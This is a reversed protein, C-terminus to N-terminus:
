GRRPRRRWRGTALALAGLPFAILLPDVMARFRTNEGIEVLDGGLVVMAVTGAVLLWVVEGPPWGDPGARSSWGRRALRVGAVLGRGLVFACLGALTLSVTVPIPEGSAFLPINWGEQSVEHDVSLLLPGYVTDLWTTRGSARTTSHVFSLRLATGRDALYAMPHRRVLTLANDRAEDYVPLYCEHNFNTTTFGSQGKEPERTTPHDHPDCPESWRRYDDAPGWPPVRALDSVEGAAVDARVLDADMPGVIGRQLNFGLWSSTTATGFVVQNKLTWGGILLVPLALAALAARRGPPRAAMLLVLVALVWAPHLLSRTLAAATLLASAAVLWSPRPGALYRQAAAVAAVVLLCVLVEYSALGITNVLSPSLVALAAVAGATLPGVGSRVLIGQLLLGTAALAAVDLAFLTGAIPAPLWAIAGVVANYGPPQTHLYWLSGVPDDALVELDLLQWTDSLYERTIGSGAANLAAAAAAVAVLIIARGLWLRRSPSAATPAVDAALPGAVAGDTGPGEQARVRGIEAPPAGADGGRM